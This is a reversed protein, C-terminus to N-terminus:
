HRVRCTLNSPSCRWPSETAPSCRRLVAKVRAVVEHSGFPKSIYDDAGIEFGVVKDIEEGKATIFIIPIRSDTERIKRCVDFGSKIPMMVDLCILDFAHSQVERSASLGDGVATVQYGEASLLEDLAARTHRDDEAVLIRQSM